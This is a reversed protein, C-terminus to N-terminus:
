IRIAKRAAIYAPNELAFLGGVQRDLLCAFDILRLAAFVSPTSTM